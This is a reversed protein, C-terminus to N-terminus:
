GNHRKNEAVPDIVDGSKRESKDKWFALAEGPAKESDTSSAADQALQSRITPDNKQATAQALLNKEAASNTANAAQDGLLADKAKESPNVEATAPANPLPPRLDYNPPVSLPQRDAVAFENSQTRKLGLAQRTSDCGATTLALGMLVPVVIKRM